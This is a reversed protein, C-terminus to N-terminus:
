KTMDILHKDGFRDIEKESVTIPEAKSNWRWLKFMRVGDKDVSVYEVFFEHRTETQFKLKAGLTTALDLIRSLPLLSVLKAM